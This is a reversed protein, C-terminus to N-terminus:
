NQMCLKTIQPDGSDINIQFWGYLSDRTTLQRFAFIRNYTYGGFMYKKCFGFEGNALWHDHMSITDGTHLYPYDPDPNMLEIDHTSSLEFNHNYYPLCDCIEDPDCSSLFEECNDIYIAYRKISLYELKKNDFTFIFEEEVTGGYKETNLMNKSEVSYLSVDEFCECTTSDGIIIFEPNNPKYNEREITDNDKECAILLCFLSIILIPTKHM